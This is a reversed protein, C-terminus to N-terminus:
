CAGTNGGTSFEFWGFTASSVYRFSRKDIWVPPRSVWPPESRHPLARHDILIVASQQQADDLLGLSTEASEVGATRM